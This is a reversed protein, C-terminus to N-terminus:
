IWSDMRQDVGPPSCPAKLTFGKNLLYTAILPAYYDTVKIDGPVRAVMMANYLANKDNKFSELLDYVTMNMCGPYIATVPGEFNEFVEKGSALNLIVIFVIASVIGVAPDKNTIWVILALMIVRFYINDFKAKWTKPLSPAALGGYLMLFILLAGRLNPDQLPNLVNNVTQNVNYLLGDM